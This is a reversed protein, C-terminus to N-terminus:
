ENNNGGRIEEKSMVLIPFVFLRHIVLITIGVFWMLSPNSFNFRNEYFLVGIVVIVINFIFYIIKGLLYAVNEKNIKM